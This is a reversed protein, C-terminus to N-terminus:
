VESRVSDVECGFLVFLCLFPCIVVCEKLENFGGDVEEFPCIVIGVRIGEVDFLRM